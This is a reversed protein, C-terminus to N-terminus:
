ALTINATRTVGDSGRVSVRLNTNSTLNFVMQGNTALTPPTTPASQILNGSADLRMREPVGTGTAFTIAGSATDRSAFQLLAVDAIIQAPVLGTDPTGNKYGIRIREAGVDGIVQGNFSAGVFNAGQISLKQTPSSTGIGLGTATYVLDSGTTLVRSANLYAVGNATGSNLTLAGGVGVPGAINAADQYALNGLYQNLPIENPATGIDSQSVLNYYQGGINERFSNNRFFGTTNGYVTLDQQVNLAAASTPGTLQIDISPVTYQYVADNTSGVMYMKTGDPKIYLGQPAVDQGAVSFVGVFASTSIDWPTTLNYVNVDDGTSGVVFMRSGDGTFSLGTSVTEQGSVSFSQLFTATSVNWATSLTYQYVADGTQGVVYMSLGNPKFSIGAPNIDQTAVSFSISDYSATAISWPTSLTYQFIADNTSGVVYMKTGDARFFLGVPAIDQGAVSFVTSYVASSVVWATSLNYENVDDGTTGIIYMKLGDPSFFLDSPTLEEAAVSFSVSDYSAGLVNVNSLITNGLASLTTFRGTSPVTSGIPTNDILGGSIVAYSPIKQWVSGNFIVTDGVVWSSIGNLTTSGATTVVYYYGQTGVSSVLTPTNTSANWTGRYSAGSVFTPPIQAPTLYGSGDLTAAGNAVAANFTAITGLGLNTRASAANNAGTGGDILALPATLGSVSGGTIATNAVSGGTISVANSNQTAITGLGLNTRAESASSAGTGGSPIPLASFLNTISGGTITVNNANQTAISGLGLNTRADAPTSAGTGGDAVALDTIGSVSGGTISVNNANQTAITGLGLNDRAQSATSANTGGSAIPLVGTINAANVSIAGIINASNVTTNNLTISTIQGTSNTTITPTQGASGYTGATGVSQLQVSAASSGNFPGTASLGTGFSLSNPTTAAVTASGGLAIASGNVTISSNSLSANGINTLTNSAGSITKNTLTQTDTTGVITGTPGAINVWAPVASNYRLLNNNAVSTILVDHLESLEYGNQPHIFISGAGGSNGKIIYGVLVMHNPAVPKTATIGGPVTPSLYVVTGDPIGTTSINNVIGQTTIFGSANAAINETAMGLITSSNGDNNAQALAVTVRQGQSGTIKVVQGENIQSATDNFVYVVEEQGVQLNVNGGVMGVQLGGHTPDWQLKGVATTPTIGTDFQVFDPTSIGGTLGTLSTINSNAGATAYLTSGTLQTWAGSQKFYLSQPTTATNIYLQGNLGTGASPVGSASLIPLGSAAMLGPVSWTFTTVNRSDVVAISVWVQNVPAPPPSVVWGTPATGTNNSFNWSGGTPTAPATASDQFIFWEFYTGGSAAGIGYLGTSESTSGYLSGTAM